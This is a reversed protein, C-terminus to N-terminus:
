REHEPGDRARSPTLTQEPTILKERGGADRWERWAIAAEQSTRPSPTAAAQRDRTARAAALDTDLALISRGLAASERELRGTEAARELRAQAEEQHQWAIRRSVEPELGRRELATIAPGKHHTPERELGQADLSRHDVRSEHGRTALHENVLAAWRERWRSVEGTKADDLERTKEAFGEATIRRTTCLLHAHHNRADGGRGPTHIAIDVACRHREVIERALALTLTRREAPALEAPLAVEFERAVTSNRRREAAEAENWLRAREASWAAADQPALVERYLVGGKRSYDHVLGTRADEIRSASRYAAAATASRGSSRSVAKVSLHYIAM